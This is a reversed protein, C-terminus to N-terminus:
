ANTEIRRRGHLVLTGGILLAAASGVLGPDLEPVSGGSGGGHGHGCGRHHRHGRGAGKWSHRGDKGGKKMEHGPPSKPKNGQGALVPSAILLGLVLAAPALGSFWRKMQKM